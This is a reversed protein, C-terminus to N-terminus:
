EEQLAGTNASAKVYRALAQRNKAVTWCDNALDGNRVADLPLRQKLESTAAVAVNILDQDSMPVPDGFEVATLLQWVTYSRRHLSNTSASM